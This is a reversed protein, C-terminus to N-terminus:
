LAIAGMGIRKRLMMFQQGFSSSALWGEGAQNINSISPASYTISEDGVSKSIIPNKPLTSQSDQNQASSKYNTVLWHAAYLYMGRQKKNHHDFDFGGWRTGGTEIDGNSLALDLVSNPWRTTSTFIPFHIRFEDIIQQTIEM